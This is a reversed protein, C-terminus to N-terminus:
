RFAGDWIPMGVIAAMAVIVYAVRRFDAESARFFFQSGLAMAGVQLPGIMLSLAVIDATLLGRLAYTVLSAASFIAFYVIFNARVVHAALAASLWYIIVPPGSIQVAGGLLGALLGVAITIPLKPRGHSRWGSVLVALIIGVLGCIMWRLAIPDAYILILTGFQAAVIAAAALPLIERWNADKYVKPVFYLATLCDIIVFSSAAVQPSYVASVLPIHILASGFGSFGRVLGALSAIAAALWFRPEAIVAAFTSADPLFNV